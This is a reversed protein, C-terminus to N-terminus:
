QPVEMLITVKHSDTQGYNRSYRNNQTLNLTFFKFKISKITKLGLHIGIYLIM